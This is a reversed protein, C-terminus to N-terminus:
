RVSMGATGQGVGVTVGTGWKSIAERAFQMAMCTDTFASMPYDKMEGIWTCWACSCHPPHGEFESLPIVWARNKFEVEMGPMGYTPNIKTNQGTTYPEIKFWYQNEGPSHQVWEILSNQYGNNEVMIIRLNPHRTNVGALQTAVEPSKWDGRLIEVPYRRQSLPDVAVVFIVNGPRQASSLDVGAFTPWGRRAIEGTVIGPTFCTTFSPFMRESDSFARQRFGREFSRPNTEQEERLRPTPWHSWPPVSSLKLSPNM